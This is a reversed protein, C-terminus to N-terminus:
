LRRGNLPFRFRKCQGKRTVPSRGSVIAGSFALMEDRLQRRLLIEINRRVNQKREITSNSKLMTCRRGAGMTSGSSFGVGVGACAGAGAVAFFSSSDFVFREVVGLGASFCCAGVLGSVRAFGVEGGRECPVPRRIM